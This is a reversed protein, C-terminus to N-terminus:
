EAAGETELGDAMIQVYDGMALFESDESGAVPAEPAEEVDDSPTDDMEPEVPEPDAPIEGTYGALKSLIKKDM